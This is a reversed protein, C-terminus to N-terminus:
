HLKDLVTSLESPLKAEISVPQNTEPHRFRIHQAHLFMRKLGFQRMVSNFENDGYKRDGAIPHNFQMSQIRAQHTKGTILEIDVQTCIDFRHVATMVSRAIQKSARVDRGHQELHSVLNKRKSKLRGRVLACYFKEVQQTNSSNRWLMHLERLFRNNKALLLVGSTDKDLRHVLEIFRLDKRESRMAEIFGVNHRTGSHVTIGAPKDVAMMFEDEYLVRKVANKLLRGVEIDTSRVPTRVPPIRIVDGICLKRKPKARSSNVRVQGTRILSYIHSRPVGRLSSILFNDLRRSESDSDM